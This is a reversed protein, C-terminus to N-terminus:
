RRTKRPGPAGADEGYGAVVMGLTQAVLVATEVPVRTSKLRNRAPDIFVGIAGSFDSRTLTCGQFNSGGLDTGTFDADTLDADLFNVEHAMCRAFATKRLSLGGFSAYRLNCEEFAVEPNPSVGSWDIGMLKSSEFRVDRLATHALVARTLDCGRFVCAELKSDTWRSEQLHSNLFTCRYFEKGRLKAGQLELQDFTENEFYDEEDLRQLATM